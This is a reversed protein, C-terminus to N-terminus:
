PLIPPKSRVPGPEGDYYAVDVSDKEDEVQELVREWELRVGNVNFIVENDDTVTLNLNIKTNHFHVGVISSLAHQTWTFGGGVGNNPDGGDFGAHLQGNKWDLGCGMGIQDKSMSPFHGQVSSGLAGQTQGIHKAKTQTWTVNYLSVTLFDPIVAAKAQCFAVALTFAFLVAPLKM